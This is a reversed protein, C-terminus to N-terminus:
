IKDNVSKKESYEGSQFDLQFYKMEDYGRGYGEFNRRLLFDVSFFKGYFAGFLNM